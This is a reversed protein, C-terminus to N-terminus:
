WRCEMVRFKGGLQAPHTLTQFQRVWSPDEVGERDALELTALRTLWPGQDELAVVEGGLRGAAEAVSIFDVHATLDCAGPLNWPEPERRHERFAQWTGEIRAPHWLEEREFGYDIWIMRAPELGVLSSQLFGDLAPRVECQWGNPLREPDAADSLLEIIEGSAKGLRGSRLSGEGDLLIGREWWDDDWRELWHFPLADLVENGFVVGPLCNTSLAEEPDVVRASFGGLARKQIERMVPLPECIVYDLAQAAEWDLSRMAELIDIALKGDNAGLEKVRWRSPRGLDQYMGFLRRAMLRGFLPGVSVSTFFDGFKGVERDGTAYYGWEPHYLALDMYRAMPMSGNSYIEDAILQRLSLTASDREM